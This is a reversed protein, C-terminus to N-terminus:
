CLISSSLACPLLLYPVPYFYIHCLTSTSIACPLLLYPVLDILQEKPKTQTSTKPHPHIGEKSEEKLRAKLCCEPSNTQFLKHCLCHVNINLDLISPSVEGNALPSEVVLGVMEEQGVFQRGNAPHTSGLYFENGYCCSSADHRTENLQCCVFKTSRTQHSFERKPCGLIAHHHYFLALIWPCDGDKHSAAVLHHTM